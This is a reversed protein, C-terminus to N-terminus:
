RRNLLYIVLNFTIILCISISLVFFLVAESSTTWSTPNLTIVPFWQLREGIGQVIFFTNFNYRILLIILLCCIFFGILFFIPEVRYYGKEQTTSWEQLGLYEQLIM